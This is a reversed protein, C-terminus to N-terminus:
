RSKDAFEEAVKVIKEALEDPLQRKEEIERGIEPYASDFYDLMDRQYKKMKKTEVDMMAKHTAACLTIVQEHLSLPSSLPQKLLEMLGSGYKLQQTTAEDLDSSFQTFIEMERYQALDIRVSGAAKKMAKAQAAGGVRSVSIGPNVAPMVGSHFLETELFIQGDTISIVNTPIYASVDGAQTEIIPLATISGGGHADDLRCSRELLRSHLYFVDGPYAERGPSRKLLLSMARYAVAHKSLDDYVVLVDKGKDMFYEAMATGAYPCIYQLPALDSAMATVVITYDMAGHKKLDEVFKAVTSAKQGIAVYVCIMDKGKQNLITDLAISTKGTQRDGIILERQGRGIPFMSDISLIGTELPVTVSKRNCVGAAEREIPYYDDYEIEGMGDIPAGLADVVRGLLKEGVGVGARKKTRVVKSGETLGHDSGLLVCGLTKREVNQVIGKVGTEFEVLEGYMAHNLGYINVIGDNISIIRGTENVQTKAEFDAIESKLVSIIDSRSSGAM